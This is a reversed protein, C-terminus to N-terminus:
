KMSELNNLNNDKIPQNKVSINTIKHTIFSIKLRSKLPSATNSDAYRKGPTRTLSKQVARMTAMTKPIALAM